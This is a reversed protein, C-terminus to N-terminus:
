DAAQHRPRQRREGSFRRWLLEVLFLALTLTVLGPWAPRGGDSLEPEYGEPSALVQGGSRASLAEMLRAGGDTDFEPHPSADTTRAVVEGGEIVLVTEEGAAGAPMLAEYRGPAVQELEISRGASRARLEAGNVYQGDEVADVVVRMAAGERSVSASYSAPRAQLWRVVSGLLAPLQPGLALQGAWGNLDTTFAASRGLGHRGVALIPEEEQGVLLTESGAKPATAIYADIAPLAGQYPSLPHPRAMPQLPEDRLLSRTAALAEATFIRPLTSVDLASHYRGGGATAIRQLVEFDASRGIAIASTTIGETGAVQALNSFDPAEGGGFPDQGDYLKGDSLIIVHKLAAESERLADLAARYAPELITGGGTGIALISSLMERKGRETAPRLRFAWEFGDSFVVLGLMDEQYAVEVVGLAGQKALELKSPRGTAMSQSRDLVIVMAVLPIEVATRLDTDVPLATEVPTRYWGGFGFSDPGGTMMLGGGNEVYSRLVQLQGQTFSGAARRLIVASYSLPASVAEPEGEVVDFGQARLLGAAAPDGIVLVPEEAAVSIEGAKEDDVTSQQYDVEVRARVAIDTEGRVVVPFPIASRGAPLQRETVTPESGSSEFTIRATTPVDSEVVAVAEITEGPAARDPLLLGALRANDRPRVWFTDVPVPPLVQLADGRSETGDSLLLIREAGGAAAVQLARALDTSDSDIEAAVTRDGAMVQATDGAFHYVKARQRWEGGFEEAASRARDGVSQSVDILVALGGGNPGPLLGGSVIPGALALILAALGSVRLLWGRARPLFLLLPLTALAWPRSLELEPFM